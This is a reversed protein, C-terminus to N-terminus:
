DAFSIKVVLETVAACVFEVIDSYRIILENPVVGIDARALEDYVSM